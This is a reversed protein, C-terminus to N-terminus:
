TPSLSWSTVVPTLFVPTGVSAALAASIHEAPLGCLLCLSATEPLMAGCRCLAAAGLAPWEVLTHSDVCVRVWRGHM